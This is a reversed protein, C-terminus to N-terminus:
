RKASPLYGLVAATQGSLSLTLKRAPQDGSELESPSGSHDSVIKWHVVSGGQFKVKALAASFTLPQSQPMECTAIVRM